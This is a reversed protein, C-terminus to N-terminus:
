VVLSNAFAIQINRDQQKCHLQLTHLKNYWKHMHVYVYHTNHILSKTNKDSEGESDRADHWGKKIPISIEDIAAM